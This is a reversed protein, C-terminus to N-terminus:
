LNHYSLHAFTLSRFHCYEKIQFYIFWEVRIVFIQFWIQLTKRLICVFSINHTYNSHRAERRWHHSIKSIVSALKPGRVTASFLINGKWVLPWHAETKTHKAQKWLDFNVRCFFHRDAAGAHQKIIKVM